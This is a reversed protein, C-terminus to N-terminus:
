KKSNKRHKYYRYGLYSGIAILAISGFILGLILGLDSSNTPTPTPPVIDDIWNATINTGLIDQTFTAIYQDKTGLPIHFNIAQSSSTNNFLDTGFTLKDTVLQDINWNFTVDKLSSCDRFANKGISTVGSPINISALSSCWNFAGDGISTVSSPINISILSSCGKFTYSSIFTVSRPITISTLSSCDWFAYSGISTVSNPINITKLLSCNFFTEEAISTVSNPINISALSSCGFFASNGIKTLQSDEAFTVSTLSTCNWFASNAIGTVPKDVGAVNVKVPIEIAGRIQGKDAPSIFGDDTISWQISSIWKATINTGLIDQTFKAKYQDETGLPIHFYITQSSTDNRFLNNGLTLKDTGLQGNDWNFTVDKLSSCDRFANTGIRTVSNPINISALSSCWNFAGDGISTVSSPINISTLSSCRGFTGVDISTVSNPINISNLSSCGNFAGVGISTLQSDNGFNVSTLASCNRFANDRISTLQSGKAFTVSTLSVCNSFADHGISTVSSPIAISTLSTCSDFANIDISTLQSGEAFTVSKLFICGQFAFIAIGTVPKDVGGVNVKAPIEIAGKIQTKDAPSINGSDDISWSIDNTPNEVFFSSHIQPNSNSFVISAPLASIALLGTFLKAFNRLKMYIYIYIYILM